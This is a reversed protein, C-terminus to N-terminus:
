TLYSNINEENIQHLNIDTKQPIAVSLYYEQVKESYIFHEDYLPEIIQNDFSEKYIINIEESVTVQKLNTIIGTGIAKLLAEKRTWLLIFDEQTNVKSRLIFECEASNFFTNIIPIFDIRRDAKEIDIGAYFYKSIVFAFAGRDNTINFYCPNGILGPKNNKDYSFVIESTDKRLKKSLISRLLGHCYIYTYRDEPYHFKEARLRENSTISNELDPHKSHLENTIGFYVDVEGVPFGSLSNICPEFFCQICNTSPIISM